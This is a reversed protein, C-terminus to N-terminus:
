GSFEPGSFIRDMDLITLFQENQRGISKIYDTKVCTGLPPPPSLRSPEIDIVERVSDTMTGVLTMEGDMIIESIIICTDVTVDAPEMGFRIRLDLVPIVTGRLNIVGLLFEPMRPIPTIPVYELVERVRSIEVAFDEDALTFNLYQNKGAENETEM